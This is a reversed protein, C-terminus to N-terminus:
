EPNSEAESLAILPDEPSKRLSAQMFLATLVAFGLYLLDFLSLAGNVLNNRFAMMDLTEGLSISVLYTSAVIVITVSTLPIAPRHYPNLTGIMALVILLSTLAASGLFASLIMEMDPNM